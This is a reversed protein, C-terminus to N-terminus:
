RRGVRCRIFNGILNGECQGMFSRQVIILVANFKRFQFYPQCAKPLGVRVGRDDYVGIFLNGMALDDLHHIDNSQGANGVHCNGCFRVRFRLRGSGM